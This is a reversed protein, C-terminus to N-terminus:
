RAAGHPAISRIRLLGPRPHGPGLPDPTPGVRHARDPHHHEDPAPVRSEAM